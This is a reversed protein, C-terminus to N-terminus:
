EAAAAKPQDGVMVTMTGDGNRRLWTNRQGTHSLVLANIRQQREMTWNRGQAFALDHLKADFEAATMEIAVYGYPM